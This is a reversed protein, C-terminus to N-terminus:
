FCIETGKKIKKTAIVSGDPEMLVNSGKEDPASVAYEFGTVVPNGCPIKAKHFNLLYGLSRETGDNDKIRVKKECSASSNEVIKGCFFGLCDRKQFERAAFLGLRNQQCRSHQITLYDRWVEDDHTSRRLRLTYAVHKDIFAERNYINWPLLGEQPMDIRINMTWYYLKGHWQRVCKNIDCRDFGLRSLTRQFKDQEPKNRSEIRARKASSEQKVRECFVYQELAADNEYRNIQPLRLDSETSEARQNM